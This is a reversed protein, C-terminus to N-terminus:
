RSCAILSLKYSIGLEAQERSVDSLSEHLEAALDVILPRATKKLNAVMKEM